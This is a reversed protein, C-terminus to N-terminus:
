KQLNKLWFDLGIRGSVNRYTGIRESKLQFSTTKQPRNPLYNENFNEICITRTAMLWQYIMSLVIDDDSSIDTPDNMFLSM